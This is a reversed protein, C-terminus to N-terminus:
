SYAFAELVEIDLIANIGVFSEGAAPRDLQALTPEGGRLNSLTVAGGLEVDQGFDTLMQEWFATAIDAHLDSDVTIPAVLLQMNIRYRLFRSQFNPEQALLTWSNVFAPWDPLKVSAPPGLKWAKKIVRSLPSSISLNGQIVVIADLASRIGM